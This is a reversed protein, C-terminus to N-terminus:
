LSRLGEVPNISAGDFWRGGEGVCVVLDVAVIDGLM